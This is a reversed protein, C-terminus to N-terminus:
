CHFCCACGNTLDILDLTKLILDVLLTYAQTSLEASATKLQTVFQQLTFYFIRRGADTALVQEFYTRDPQM